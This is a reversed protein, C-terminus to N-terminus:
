RPNKSYRMGNPAVPWAEQEHFTYQLARGIMAQIDPGTFKGVLYLLADIGSTVGSSTILNGEDVFRVNKVLEIGPYTEAFDDAVFFHTTARKGNLVGVNALLYAATCISLTQNQPDACWKTLFDTLKQNELLANIVPMSGGPIILFDAEPMANISYDPRITLFNNETAIPNDNLGVTFLQYKGKTLNKAKSLVEMPGAFDELVVGQYLLLAFTITDHTIQHSIGRMNQAHADPYAQQQCFTIGPDMLIILFGTLILYFKM